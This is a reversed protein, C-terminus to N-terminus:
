SAQWSKPLTLKNALTSWYHQSDPLPAGGAGKQMKVEENVDKQMQMKKNVDKQMIVEKNVNTQMKVEANVDKQMKADNDVDKQVVRNVKEQYAAKRPADAEKSDTRYHANPRTDKRNRHKRTDKRKAMLTLWLHLASIVLCFDSSM